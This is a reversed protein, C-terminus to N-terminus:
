AMLTPAFSAPMLTMSSSCCLTGGRPPLLKQKTLLICMDDDAGLLMGWWSVLGMWDILRVGLFFELSQNAAM